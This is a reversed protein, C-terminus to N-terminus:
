GILCVIAEGIDPREIWQAGGADLEWQLGPKSMVKDSTKDFIRKVRLEITEILRNSACLKRRGREGNEGKIVPGTEYVWVRGYGIRM